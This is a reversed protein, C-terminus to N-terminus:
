YCPIINVIRVSSYRSHNERISNILDRIEDEEPRDHRFTFFRNNIGKGEVGEWYLVVLATM